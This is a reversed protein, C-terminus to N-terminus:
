ITKAKQPTDAIWDQGKFKSSYISMLLKYERYKIKNSIDIYCLWFLVCLGSITILALLVIVIILIHVINNDTCAICKEPTTEQNWSSNTGTSEQSTSVHTPSNGPNKAISCDIHLLSIDGESGTVPDWVFNNCDSVHQPPKDYTSSCCSLPATGKMWLMQVLMDQNATPETWPPVREGHQYCTFFGESSSGVPASCEILHWIGSTMSTDVNQAVPVCKLPGMPYEVQLELSRTFNALKRFNTDCARCTYIGEDEKTVNHIVLTVSFSGNDSFSEKVEFRNQQNETLGTSVIERNVYFSFREELRMKFTMSPPIPSYAFVLEASDGEFVSHGNGPSTCTVVGTMLVFLRLCPAICPLKSEM